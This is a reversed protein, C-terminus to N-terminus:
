ATNVLSTPNSKTGTTIDTRRLHGLSAENEVVREKNIVFLRGNDALSLIVPSKKKGAGTSPSTTKKEGGLGNKSIDDGFAKIWFPTLCEHPTPRYM